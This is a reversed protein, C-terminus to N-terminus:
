GPEGGLARITPCPWEVIKGLYSGNPLQYSCEGCITDSPEIEVPYHLERAADLQTHLRMNEVGVMDGVKISAWDKFPKTPLDLATAIGHEISAGRSDEWGDLLAVGDVVSLLRLAHRMYDIWKADEELRIAAPNYVEYGAAHLHQAATNFAARNYDPRGTMPGAIYLKSIKMTTRRQLHARALRDKIPTLDLEPM